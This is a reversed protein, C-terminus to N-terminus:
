RDHDKDRGLLRKFFGGSERQNEGEEKIRICLSDCVWEIDDQNPELSGALPPYKAIEELDGASLVEELPPQISQEKLYHYALWATYPRRSGGDNGDFGTQFLSRLWHFRPLGHFNRDGIMFCLEPDLEDIELNGQYNLSIPVKEHDKLDDPLGMVASTGEPLDVLVMKWLPLNEQMDRATILEKVLGKAWIPYNDGLLPLLTKYNSHLFGEKQDIVLLEELHCPPIGIFFSSDKWPDTLCWSWGTAEQLKEMAALVEERTSAGLYSIIESCNAQFGFEIKM